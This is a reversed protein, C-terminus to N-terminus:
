ARVMFGLTGLGWACWELFDIAGDGNVDTEALLAVLDKTKLGRSVLM